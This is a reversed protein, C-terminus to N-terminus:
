ETFDWPPEGAIQQFPVRILWVKRTSDDLVERVEGDIVFRFRFHDFDGTNEDLFWFSAPKSLMRLCQSSFWSDTFLLDLTGRRLSAPRLTVDPDPKGLIPHIVNQSQRAAEYGYVEVPSSTSLTDTWLDWDEPNDPDIHANIQFGM